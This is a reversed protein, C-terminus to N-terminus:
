LAPVQKLGEHEFASTFHNIATLRVGPIPNQPIRDITLRTKDTVPLASLSSLVPDRGDQRGETSM